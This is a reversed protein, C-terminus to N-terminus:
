DRKLSSGVILGDRISNAIGQFVWRGYRGVQLVDYKEFESLALERWKSDPWSWTYAVEIWTPDVVEAETIFDWERLEDVVAQSYERTESDGPQQGGLFTREVYISVRDNAARTSLPLFRHDVASYFGVRHFGSKSSPVYIWHDDPCSRGRKAGINIVLVSTYPDTPSNLKLESLELMTNLPLTSVLKDYEVNSGDEFLVTRSKLDIRVVRKEYRVDSAAAMRQALTDLGDRPYMFKVNYGVSTTDGFAGRIANSINVPSKYGDQPAIRTYLGATYLAHFDYFFLECMTPGFSQHLWEKMTCFSGPQRSMEVLAQSALKPDLFRLNNQLPYPVYLKKDAFYVSSRRSYVDSAAFKDIFQTISRDGGFIWHGGGLEFRYAGGDTPEKYLRETSGPRVYYSACIGGPQNSAEYLPLGSAFGAALGTMGAGLIVNQSM